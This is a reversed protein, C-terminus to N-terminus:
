YIEIINRAEYDEYVEYYDDYDDYDDIITMFDFNSNSHLKRVQLRCLRRM